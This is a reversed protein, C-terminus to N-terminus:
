QKNLKKLYDLEDKIFDFHYNILYDLDEPKIFFHRLLLKYESNSLINKDNKDSKSWFWRPYPETKMFHYWLDMAVVKDINKVNLLHSYEVYRKSFFRNFIFFFEEKQKDTVYKWKEKDKTIINFISFINNEIEM